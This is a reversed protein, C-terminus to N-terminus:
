RRRRSGARGARGRGARGRRRARRRAPPAALRELLRQRVRGTTALEDTHGAVSAASLEDIYAFVLEAFRCWRRRRRRGNRVATTRCRAGPSGPASGTRRSCRRPADARQPGRGRGLQYAGEVAPATPTRRDAGAGAAPWPSSAASRSSCPTASTRAWRGACPAARLQAGRRHHGRRDRRGGGAPQARMETSRRRGAARLGHGATRRPHSAPGDSSM